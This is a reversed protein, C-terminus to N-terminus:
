PAPSEGVSDLRRKAERYTEDPLPGMQAAQANEALHDPNLTGVINATMGPHNLTFRLLWQTRTEGPSLLENLRAADWKQWREQSGLGAGPEGRAVGGRVIM